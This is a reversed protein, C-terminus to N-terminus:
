GSESSRQPTEFIVEPYGLQRFLSYLYNEANKGALELIGDTKAAKEIEKEAVKRAETRCFDRQTTPIAKCPHDWIPHAPGHARFYM